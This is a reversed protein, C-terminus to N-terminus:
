VPSGEPRALDRAVRFGPTSGDDMLFPGGPLDTM